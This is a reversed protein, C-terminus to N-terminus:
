TGRASFLPLEDEDPKRHRRELALLMAKTDVGSGGSFGTLRGSSGMVRHCPVIIPVPNAGCAQGVARPSSGIAEALAGYTRTEGYPIRRMQQWVAQQHPSGAAAVPLDFCQLAGAAYASLQRAAEALLPTPPEAPLSPAEGPGIWAVRVIGGDEAAVLLDGVETSLTMAHRM